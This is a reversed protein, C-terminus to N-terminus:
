MRNDTHRYVAQSEAIRQSTRAHSRFRQTVELGRLRRRRQKYRKEATRQFSFNRILTSCPKTQPRLGPAHIGSVLLCANFSSAVWFFEHKLLWQYESILQSIKSHRVPGTTSLNGGSRLCVSMIYDWFAGSDLGTPRATTWIQCPVSRAPLTCSTCFISSCTCYTM